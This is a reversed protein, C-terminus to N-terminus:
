ACRMARAFASATREGPRNTSVASVTTATPRRMRGLAAVPASARAQM